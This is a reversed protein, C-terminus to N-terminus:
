FFREPVVITDGPQVLDTMKAKMEAKKGDVTRIIKVRKSSGRETIGGAVTLAQLVTTDEQFRYPGQKAVFGTIYVQAARPVLVTDGAQLEPAADPAGSLLAKVSVRIVEADPIKALDAEGAEDTPIEAPAVVETGKPPRIVVVEHGADATLNGVDALLARLSRDAKLPYMGPKQVEGSVYVRQSRYEKVALSVQPHKLYGDALLTTLKRELDEASMGSAKVKGLIPFTLLGDRDVPFDGTMKDQGLVVVHVIDEPGIEYVEDARIPKSLLVLLTLLVLGRRM